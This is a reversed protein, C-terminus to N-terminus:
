IAHMVTDGLVSCPELTFQSGRGGNCGFSKIVKLTSLRLIFMEEVPDGTM